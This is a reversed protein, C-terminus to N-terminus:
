AQAPVIAQRQRRAERMKIGGLRDRTSPERARDGIDQWGRSRATRRPGNSAATFKGGRLNRPSRDREGSERGIPSVGRSASERPGGAGRAGHALRRAIAQNPQQPRLVM